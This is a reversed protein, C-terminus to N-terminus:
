QMMFYFQHHCGWVVMNFRTQKILVFVLAYKSSNMKLFNSARALVCYTVYYGTFHHIAMKVCIVYLLRITFKLPAPLCTKNDKPLALSDRRTRQVTDVNETKELEWCSLSCYNGFMDSQERFLFELNPKTQSLLWICRGVSLWVLISVGPFFHETHWGCQKISLCFEMAQCSLGLLTLTSYWWKVVFTWYQVTNRFTTATRWLPCCIETRCGPLLSEDQWWKSHNM